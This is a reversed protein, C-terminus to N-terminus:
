LEIEPGALRELRLEAESKRRIIIDGNPLKEPAKYSQLDGLLTMLDRVAPEMERLKPEIDSLARGMEDIAPEMEQVLGDLLMRAGREMLSWGEEAPPPPTEQAQVPSAAVLLALAVGRM